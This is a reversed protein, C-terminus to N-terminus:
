QCVIRASVVRQREDTTTKIISGKQPDGNVVQWTNFKWKHPVSGVQLIAGHKPDRVIEGLVRGVVAGTGAVSVVTVMQQMM